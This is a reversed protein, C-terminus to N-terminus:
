WLAFLACKKFGLGMGLFEDGEVFSEPVVM